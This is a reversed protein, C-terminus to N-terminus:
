VEKEFNHMCNAKRLSNSLHMRWLFERNQSPTWKLQFFTVDSGQIHCYQTSFCIHATTLFPNILLYWCTTTIRFIDSSYVLGKWGHYKMCVAPCLSNRSPSWCKWKSLHIRSNIAHSNNRVSGREAQAWAGFPQSRILQHYSAWIWPFYKHCTMACYDLKTKWQYRRSTAKFLWQYGLFPSPNECESM